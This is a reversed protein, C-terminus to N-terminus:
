PRGDTVELGSRFKGCYCVGDRAADMACRAGSTTDPMYNEPDEDEDIEAAFVAWNCLDAWCASPIADLRDAIKWRQDESLDHSM